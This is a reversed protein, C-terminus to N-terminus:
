DGVPLRFAGTRHFDFLRGAISSRAPPHLAFANLCGALYAVEFNACFAMGGMAEILDAGVGPLTDQLAYRLHMVRASLADGRVGADFERCILTLASWATEIASVASAFAAHDTRGSDLCRQLLATATGLYSAVTLMGFWIYGTRENEGTPDAVDHAVVALAPLVVDELIIEESEAARLVPSAWFPRVSVGPTEAPVMAIGRGGGEIAVSCLVIDMSRAMSCPRKRGNLVYDEGRAVATATPTFVSGGGPTGESFGSAILAGTATLFQLAAREDETGTATAEVITAISLHHMMTAVALSPARSGLVRHIQAMQEATAGLGGLNQPIALGPGGAEKFVALAAGGPQELQEIGTDRLHEALAPLYETLVRWEQDLLTPATLTTM